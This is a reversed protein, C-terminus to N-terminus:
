LGHHGSVLLNRMSFIRMSQKVAGKEMSLFKKDNIQSNREGSNKRM